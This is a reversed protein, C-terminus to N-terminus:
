YLTPPCGLYNLYVPIGLTPFSESLLAELFINIIRIKQSTRYIRKSKKEVVGQGGVRATTTTSKIPLLFDM